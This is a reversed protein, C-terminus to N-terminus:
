ELNILNPLFKSRKEGGVDRGEMGNRQKLVRSYRKSVLKIVEIKASVM